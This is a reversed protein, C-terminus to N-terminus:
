IVTSDDDLFGDDSLGADLNGSDSGGDRAAVSTQDDNGYYNNVVNTETGPTNMGSPELFANKSSHGFLNEIGQFLFAGGAV